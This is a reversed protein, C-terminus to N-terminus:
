LCACVCACAATSARRTSCPPLRSLSYTAFPRSLRLFFFFVISLIKHTTNERPFHQQTANNHDPQSGSRLRGRALVAAEARFYARYLPEVSGRERERGGEEGGM